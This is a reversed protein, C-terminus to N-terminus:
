SRTENMAEMAGAEIVRIEPWLDPTVEIGALDLGARVGAYDLGTAVLRGDATGIMHWQTTVALFAEVARQNDCWVGGDDAPTIDTENLDLGWLRADEIAAETPAKGAFVGTAWARGAWKLKGSQGQHHRGYLRAM